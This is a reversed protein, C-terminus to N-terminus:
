SVSDKAFTKMAALSNRSELGSNDCSNWRRKILSINRRLSRAKSWIWLTDYELGLSCLAEPVMTTLSDRSREVAPGFDGRRLGSEIAEAGPGKTGKPPPSSNEPTKDGESGGGTKLRTSTLELLRSVSPLHNWQARVNLDINASGM